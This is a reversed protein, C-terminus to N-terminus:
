LIEKWERVFDGNASGEREGPRTFFQLAHIEEAQASLIHIVARAEDPFAGLTLRVAPIVENGPAHLEANAADTDHAGLVENVIESTGSALVVQPNRGAFEWQDLLATGQGLLKGGSFQVPFGVGRLDFFEGGAEDLVQKGQGLFPFAGRAAFGVGDGEVGAPVALGLLLFGGGEFDTVVGLGQGAELRM